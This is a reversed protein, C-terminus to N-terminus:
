INLYFSQMLLSFEEDYENDEKRIFLEETHIFGAKRSSVTVIRNAPKNKSPHINLQRSIFHGKEKLIRMWEKQEAAPLLVSAYGDDSNNEDIVKMLGNLSFHLAHRAHNRKEDEGLLSNKFFPPNCIILEYKKPYSYNKADGHLINLREKWPSANFNDMAQMAAQADIEIADIHINMGRQALMLSLLGTGTGIDLVNKVQPEIPTWAGHICADTSVKMACEAQEIRFQKFQFYSNAM